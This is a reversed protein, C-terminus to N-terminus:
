FPILVDAVISFLLIASIMANTNFFAIQIHKESYDRRVIAHQYVLLLAIIIFGLEALISFGYLSLSYVTLFFFVAHNLASIILASGIGFHAGISHLNYKRDFDVDQL